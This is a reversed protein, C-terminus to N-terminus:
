DQLESAALEQVLSESTTVTWGARSSLRERVGCM